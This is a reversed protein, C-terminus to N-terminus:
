AEPRLTSSQLVQLPVEPFRRGNVQIALTCTGPTLKKTATSRLLHRKTLTLPATCCDATVHAAAPFATHLPERHVRHPGQKM